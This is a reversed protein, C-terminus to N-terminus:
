EVIALIDKELLVVFDEGKITFDYGTYQGIAVIDGIKCDTIKNGIDIVKALQTRRERAKEPIYIVGQFEEPTTRKAVLKKGYPKIM